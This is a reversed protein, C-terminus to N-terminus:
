DLFCGESCDYFRSDTTADGDNMFVNMFVNTFINTHIHMTVNMRLKLLSEVALWLLGAHKGPLLNRERRNKEHL